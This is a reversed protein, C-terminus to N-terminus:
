YGMSGDSQASDVKLGTNIIGNVDGGGGGLSIPLGADISLTGTMYWAQVPHNFTTFQKLESKRYYGLLPRYKTAAIHDLLAQPEGTFVVDIYRARLGQLGEV